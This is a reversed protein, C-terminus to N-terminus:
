FLPFHQRVQHKTTSRECELSNRLTQVQMTQALTASLGLEQSLTKSMRANEHQALQEEVVLLQETLAAVRLAEGSRLADSGSKEHQTAAPASSSSIAQLQEELELIRGKAAVLKGELQM